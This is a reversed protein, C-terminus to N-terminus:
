GNERVTLRFGSAGATIRATYTTEETEITWSGDANETFTAPVRRDGNMYFLLYKVDFVGEELTYVFAVKHVIGQEAEGYRYENGDWTAASVLGEEDRALDIVFTEYTYAGTTTNYTSRVLVAKTGDEVTANFGSETVDSAPLSISVVDLRGFGAYDRGAKWLQTVTVTGVGEVDFPREITVSILVFQKAAGDLFFRVTYARGDSGNVVLAKGYGFNFDNHTLDTAAASYKGTFALPACKSDSINALNVTLADTVLFQGVRLGDIQMTNQRDASDAYAGQEGQPVVAFTNNGGTFHLTLAYTEPLSDMEASQYGLTVKVTTGEYSVSVTYGMGATEGHLLDADAEFVAGNALFTLTLPLAYDRDTFTVEGALKRYTKGGLTYSDGAPLAVTDSAGEATYRTVTSGSVTYYYETGDVTLKAAGFEVASFDEAYYTGRYKENDVFAFKGDTGLTFLTEYAGAVFYGLGDTVLLYTGQLVTGYRGILSAEGFGDLRIVTWDADSIYVRDEEANYIQYIYTTVEDETVSSTRFVFTGGEGSTGTYLYGSGDEIAAYTGRGLLTHSRLEAGGHGDLRLFRMANVTKGDSFAYDGYPLTRLSLSGGQIDFLFERDTALGNQYVWFRVATAREASNIFSHDATGSNVYGLYMNGEMREGAENEYVAVENPYGVSSVHGGGSVDFEGVRHAIQVQYLPLSETTTGDQVTYIGLLIKEDVGSRRITYEMFDATWAATRTYSTRVEAVTGDLPNIEYYVATGRGNLVLYNYLSIRQNDNMEYWFGADGGTVDYVTNGEVTFIFSSGSEATFFILEGVRNVIRGKVANGGETYTYTGYGDSTFNAYQASESKRVFTGAGGNVGATRKFEFDAYSELDSATFDDLYNKLVFREAGGTMETVDGVGVYRFLGSELLLGLYVRGGAYLLRATYADEEGGAFDIDYMDALNVETFTENDTTIFYRQARTAPDVIFIYFDAYGLAFGYDIPSNNYTAIGETLDLTLGEAVTVVVHPEPYVAHARGNEDVAFDFANEYYSGTLENVSRHFHYTGDANATVESILENYLVYATDGSSMLAYESWFEAEGNEFIYLFGSFFDNLTHLEGTFDFRGHPVDRFQEAPITRDLEFEGYDMDLRFYFAGGSEPLFRVLRYDDVVDGDEEEYVYLWTILTYTGAADGYSGKGYGDLSLEEQSTGWKDIYSGRLGDDMHASGAIEGIDEFEGEPQVIDTGLSFTFQKLISAYDRTYALFLEEEANYEYYGSVTLVPEGFLVYEYNTANYHYELGGLGDLYLVIGAASDYYYGEEDLDQRRFVVSGGDTQEFLNFLFSVEDSTFSFYLSDLDIDYTGAYDRSGDNYLAAGHPSLILTADTGDLDRYTAEFADMFYFFCEGSIKGDLIVNEGEKFTFIGTAPDFAGKRENSFARVLYVTDDETESIFLKDGGGFLDSYGAQWCAFFIIDDDPTLVTGPMFQPEGTRSTAWGTFRYVGSMTYGNQAVTYQDGYRVEASATVGTGTENAPPNAVYYIHFVERSLYLAFAENAALADTASHSGPANEDLFFHAPAEAFGAANLPEGYFAEGQVADGASYTGDASQTYVTYTYSTRYKATLTISTAPMTAGEAILVDNQYWGAFTLGAKVSTPALDKLVDSLLTGVPVPLSTQPLTGGDNSVLTLVTPAAQEWKAYYTVDKEPMVTPLTCPEGTCDPQLFWGGFTYGVRTPDAPLKGDLAEGPEGEIAEIATGGNTEFTLKVKGNGGCAALLLSFVLALICCTALLYRKIRM